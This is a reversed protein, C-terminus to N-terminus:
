PQDEFLGKGDWRATEPQAGKAVAKGALGAERLIRPMVRCYSTQVGALRALQAYELVLGEPMRQLVMRVRERWDEPWQRGSGPLLRVTDGVTIPGSRLVRALAGRQRGIRKALGPSQADLYGCAECQFSVALVAQPGLALLAGSSLASTDFDLLLNEGLAGDPLSHGVYAAAGALLVQRPSLPDAHVDGQLGAGALAQVTHQRQWPLSRGPRVAIALVRSM